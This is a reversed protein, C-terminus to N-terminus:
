FCFTYVYMIPVLKREGVFNMAKLQPLRTQAKVTDHALFLYLVVVVTCISSFFSTGSSNKGLSIHTDINIYTNCISKKYLQFFFITLVKTTIESGIKTYM